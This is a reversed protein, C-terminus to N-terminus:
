GTLERIGKDNESKPEKPDVHKAAVVAMADIIKKNDQVGCLELIQDWLKRFALQVEVSQTEDDIVRTKIYAMIERSDDNLLFTNYAKLRIIEKENAESM